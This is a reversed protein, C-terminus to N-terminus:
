RDHAESGGTMVTLLPCGPPLPALLEVPRPESAATDTITSEVSGDGRDTAMDKVSAVHSEELPPPNPEKGTRFREIHTVRFRGVSFVTVEGRPGCVKGRLPHNRAQGIASRGQRSCHLCVAHPVGTGGGHVTHHHSFPAASLTTLPEPFLPSHEPLKMEEHQKLMEQLAEANAKNNLICQVIQGLTDQNTDHVDEDVPGAERETDLQRSTRCRYGKEQLLRCLLIGLLGMLFFVLIAAFITYLGQPRTDEESGENEMRWVRRPHLRHPTEM